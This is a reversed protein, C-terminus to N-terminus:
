KDDGETLPVVITSFYLAMGKLAGMVGGLEVYAERIMDRNVPAQKQSEYLLDSVKNASKVARELTAVM